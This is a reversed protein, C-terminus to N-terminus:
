ALWRQWWLLQSRRAKGVAILANAVAEEVRETTVDHLQAADGYSLGDCRVAMFLARDLPDLAAIAQEAMRLQTRRHTAPGSM